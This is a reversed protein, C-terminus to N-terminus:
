PRGGSTPSSTASVASRRAAERAIAAAKEAHEVVIMADDFCKLETGFDSGPLGKLRPLLKPAYELDHISGEFERLGRPKVKRRAKRKAKM